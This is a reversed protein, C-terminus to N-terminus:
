NQHVSKILSLKGDRLMFTQIASCDTCEIQFFKDDPFKPVNSPVNSIDRADIVGEFFPKKTM